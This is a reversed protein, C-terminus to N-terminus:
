NIWVANMQTILYGRTGGGDETRAGYKPVWMGNYWRDLSKHCHQCIFRYTGERVTKAIVDVGSEDLCEINKEYDLQQRKGCSDCRHM